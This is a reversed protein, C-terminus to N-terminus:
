PYHSVRRPSRFIFPDRALSTSPSRIALIVTPSAWYFTGSAGINNIGDDVVTVTVTAAAAGGISAALAVLTLLAMKCGRFLAALGVRQTIKKMQKNYWEKM